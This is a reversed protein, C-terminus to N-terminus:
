PEDPVRISNDRLSELYARPDRVFRAARSQQLAGTFQEVSLPVADGTEANRVSANISEVFHLFRQYLEPNWARLDFRAVVEPPEPGGMLVNVRDGDEVGWVDLDTHWSQGPPLMQSLRQRYDAPLGDPSLVVEFDAQWVAM